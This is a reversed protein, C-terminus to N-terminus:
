ELINLEAVVTAALAAIAVIALVVKMELGL